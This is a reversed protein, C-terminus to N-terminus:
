YDIIIFIQDPLLEQLLKLALPFWIGLVNTKLM